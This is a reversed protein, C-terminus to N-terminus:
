KESEFKFKPLLIPQKMFTWYDIDKLKHDMIFFSLMVTVFAAATFGFGFAQEGILYTIYTFVTNAVFFLGTMILADKQFDFYFMINLVMLFGMQLFSGLIGIRFIGLQEYNLFFLEALEFLFLIVTLSIAGQFLVFKQFHKTLTDIMAQKEAAIMDHSERARISQYYAHYRKVFSTEMQVLFFAMSPIVTVYALFMATDYNTFVFFGDGMKEAYPSFWFIFKDVWIGMFYFIGVFMLTSYKKFYFLFGFDHTTTYGFEAFIQYSLMFFCVAQGITFGILFGIMGLAYGFFLSSLATAIGGFVYSFVIWMYNRGASLFIMAIWIGNVILYLLYLVLKFMVDLELPYLYVLCAISQILFLIQIVSLYTPTFAGLQKLYYQDALYRTVVYYFPAVGLMSFAYVYVIMSMYQNTEDISLRIHSVVRMFAITFIVILFPGASIVASYAYARILDSYSESTVLKQLRFAIGAM